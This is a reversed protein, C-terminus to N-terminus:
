NTGLTLVLYNICSLGATYVSLVVSLVAQESDETWPSRLMTKGSLGTITTGLHAWEIPGYRDGRDRTTTTTTSM